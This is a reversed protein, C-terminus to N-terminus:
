KQYFNIIEKFYFTEKSTDLATYNFEFSEFGHGFGTTQICTRSDDNMFMVRLVEGNSFEVRYEDSAESQLFKNLKEM